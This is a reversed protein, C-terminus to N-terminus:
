VQLILSSLFDCVPLYAGDEANSEQYFSCAWSKKTTLHLSFKFSWNPVFFQHSRCFVEEILGDGWFGPLHHTATHWHVPSEVTRSYKQRFTGTIHTTETDQGRALLNKLQQVAAFWEFHLLQPFLLWLKGLLVTLPDVPWQFSIDTNAWIVCFGAM